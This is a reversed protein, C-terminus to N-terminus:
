VETETKRKIEALTRWEDVNKAVILTNSSNYYLIFFSHFFPLCLFLYNCFYFLSFLLFFSLFLVLTTKYKFSFLLISDFDDLLVWKFSIKYYCRNFIMSYYGNLYWRIIIKLKKIKKIQFIMSNLFKTTVNVQSFMVKLDPFIQVSRFVFVLHFNQDLNWGFQHDLVPRSIFFLNKLLFNNSFNGIRNYEFKKIYHFIEVINFLHIIQHNEISTVVVTKYKLNRSM